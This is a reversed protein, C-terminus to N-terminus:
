QLLKDLGRAVQDMGVAAQEDSVLDLSANEAGTLRECHLGVTYLCIDHAKGLTNGTTHGHASHKGLLLDRAREARAVM